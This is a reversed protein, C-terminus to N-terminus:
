QAETQTSDASGAQDNAAQDAAPQNSSTLADVKALAARIIEMGTHIRNWADTNQAYPTNRVKADLWAALADAASMADAPAVGAQATVDAALRQIEALDTAVAATANKGM